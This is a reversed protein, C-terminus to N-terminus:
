HDSSQTWRGGYYSPPFTRNDNIRKQLEAAYTANLMDSVLDKVDAFDPDGLHMRLAFAHKSAEVTRHLGLSGNVAKLPDPYAALINLVLAMCVGGSSPPPMGYITLGQVEHVIPDLIKVAYEKLDEKTLIGGADKVDGVFSEGIQGKYFADPGDQAILKLSKALSKRFCVDGAKLLTGNPAFVERFGEDSLISASSASLASALYWGVRFGNDALRIAPKVLSKWPLSGYRQWVLYLGALEGPVAVSLGGNLQLDANESYMDQYAAAPAVERFNFAIAATSNAPRFLLFAGGGIGSAGPSLVGLCLAVSVCADVANGGHKAMVNRGIASFRGEDAGSHGYAVRSLGGEYVAGTGHVALVLLLSILTAASPMM